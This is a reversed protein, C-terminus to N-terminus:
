IAAAPISGAMVLADGAALRSTLESPELTEQGDRVDDISGGLILEAIGATNDTPM